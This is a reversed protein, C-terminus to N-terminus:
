NYSSESMGRVFVVDATQQTDKRLGFYFVEMLVCEPIDNHPFSKVMCKFRSWADHLNEKDKQKFLM